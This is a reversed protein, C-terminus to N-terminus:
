LMPLVKLLTTMEKIAAKSNEDDGKGKVFKKKQASYRLLFVLTNYFRVDDALKFFMSVAIICWAIGIWIHLEFNALFLLIAIAAFIFGLILDLGTVGRVFEARVKTRRPIVRVM